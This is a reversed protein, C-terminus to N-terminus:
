LGDGVTRATRWTCAAPPPLHCRTEVADLPRQPGGSRQTDESPWPQELPLRKALERRRWTYADFIVHQGEETVQVELPTDAAESEAHHGDAQRSYAATGAPWPHPAAESWAIWFSAGIISASVAVAWSDSTM